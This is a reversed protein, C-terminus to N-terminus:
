VVMLSLTVPSRCWSVFPFSTPMLHPAASPLFLCMWAVPLRCSHPPRCQNIPLPGCHFPLRVQVRNISSRRSVCPSGGAFLLFRMHHCVCDCLGHPAYWRATSSDLRINPVGFLSVRVCLSSGASSVAVTDVVAAAECYIPCLTHAFGAGLAADYREIPHLPHGTPPLSRSHRHHPMAARYSPDSLAAALFAFTNVASIAAEVGDRKGKAVDLRSCPFCKAHTNRREVHM